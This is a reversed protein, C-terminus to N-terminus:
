RVRTSNVPERRKKIIKFIVTELKTTVSSECGHSRYALHLRVPPSDIGTVSIARDQLAAM